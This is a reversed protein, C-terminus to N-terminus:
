KIPHNSVAIEKEFLKLEFFQRDRPSTPQEGNELIPFVTEGFIDFSLRKRNLFMINWIRGKIHEFSGYFCCYSPTSQKEKLIQLILINMIEECSCPRDKRTSLCNKREDCYKALLLSATKIGCLILLILPPLDFLSCIRPRPSIASKNNICCTCHICSWSVVVTRCYLIYFSFFLSHM